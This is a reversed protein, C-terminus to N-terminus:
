QIRFAAIKSVFDVHEANAYGIGVCIPLWFPLIKNRYAVKPEDLLSHRLEIKHENTLIIAHCLPLVDTESRCVKGTRREVQLQHTVV